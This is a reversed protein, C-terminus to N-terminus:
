STEAHRLGAFLAELSRQRDYGVSFGGAKLIVKKRLQWRFANTRSDEAHARKTDEELKRRSKLHERHEKVWSMRDESVKGDFIPRPISQPGAFGEMREGGMPQFSKDTGAGGKSAMEESDMERRMLNRTKAQRSRIREIEEKNEAEYQAIRGQALEKDNKSGYVADHLIDHVQLEFEAYELDSAFDEREKNFIDSLRKLLEIQRSYQQQRLTKSKFTDGGITVQPPYNL